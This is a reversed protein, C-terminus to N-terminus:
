GKIALGVIPFGKDTVATIRLDEPKIGLEATKEMVEKLTPNAMFDYRHITDLREM